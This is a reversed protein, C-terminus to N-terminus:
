RRKGFFKDRKYPDDDMKDNPDYQAIGDRSDYRDKGAQDELSYSVNQRSDYDGKGRGRNKKRSMIVVIIILVVILVVIGVCVMCITELIGWIDILDVNSQIEFSGAGGTNWLVIYHEGAYTTLYSGSLPTGFQAVGATLNDFPGVETSEFDVYQTSNFIYFNMPGGGLVTVLYNFTFGEDMYVIWTVYNNASITREETYLMLPTMECGSCAPTVDDTEAQVPMAAMLASLILTLAFTALVLRGFPKSSRKM